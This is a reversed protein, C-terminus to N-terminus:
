FAARFRRVVDSTELSLLLTQVLLLIQRFHNVFVTADAPLAGLLRSPTGQCSISHENIPSQSQKCRGQALWVFGTFLM